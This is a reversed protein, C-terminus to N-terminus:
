GKHWLGTLRGTKIKKKKVVTQVSLYDPFPLFSGTKSTPYDSHTATVKMDGCEDWKHHTTLRHKQSKSTLVVGAPHTIRATDANHWPRITM